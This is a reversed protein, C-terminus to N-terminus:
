RRMFGTLSVSTMSNTRKKITDGENGGISVYTKAAPDYSIVFHVHSPYPGTEEKYIAVDGPQPTFGPEDAPHFIGRNKAYALIGAVAPLPGEEFPQGAENFVWSVFWGCWAQGRTGGYKTHSGDSEKAGLNLEREAIQVVKQALEGSIVQGCGGTGSFSIGALAAYSTFAGYFDNAPFEISGFDVKIQGWTRNSKTPEVSPDRKLDFKNMVYPSGEYRQTNPDFGLRQAQQAYAAGGSGNYGLFAAKVVEIDPNTSTLTKGAPVKGRIFSAALDTQRQFETDNVPGTPYPGGNKNVFQYIGQGNSPNNRALNSENKHIVAIMQWPIDAKKAASEYFPQNQSIQTLQTTNFIPRGAYDVSEGGGNATVTAAGSVSCAQDGTCNIVRVGLNRLKRENCPTGIGQASSRTPFSVVVLVVALTIELFIRVRQRSLGLM